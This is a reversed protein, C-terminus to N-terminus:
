KYNVLFLNRKWDGFGLTAAHGDAFLVNIRNNQGHRFPASDQTGSNSSGWVADAWGMAPDHNEIELSQVVCPAPVTTGLPMLGEPDLGGLRDTLFYCGEGGWLGLSGLSYPFYANGGGQGDTNNGYSQPGDWVLAKEGPDKVGSLQRRHFPRGDGFAPDPLWLGMVVGSIPLLRPNGVYHNVKDPLGSSNPITASPCIFSKSYRMTWFGTTDYPKTGIYESVMAPWFRFEAWAGNPKYIDEVGYPMGKNTTDYMQLGYYIQRLNSLCQVAAAAKRARNLAPLLISILLAIIGIVVLLEVLTFGGGKNRSM